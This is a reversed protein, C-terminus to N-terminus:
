PVVVAHSVRSSAFRLCAQIDEIQLDPHERMIQKATMGSALLELVDSVRIRMGRVCPRGGCQRPNVTIRDMLQAM